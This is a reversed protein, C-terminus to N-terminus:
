AAAPRTSTWWGIRSSSAPDADAVRETLNQAVQEVSFSESGGLWGRERATETDRPIATVAVVSEDTAGSFAVARGLAARSLPSDDFAVVYTM